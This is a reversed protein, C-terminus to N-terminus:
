YFSFRVMWDDGMSQLNPDQWNNTKGDNKEPYFYSSIYNIFNM